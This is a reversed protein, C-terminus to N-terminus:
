LIQQLIKKQELSLKEPYDVNFNIILNGIYNDRKIGLNSIIQQYGDKIISSGDNKITYIKKNIHNINFSFGCLSEKFSINKNYILDLGKRKFRIDDLIKIQIKIDGNIVYNISNGKNKILIIENNDIGQPITVYITEIEKSIIKNYELKKEIEVPLICGLFAQELNIELKKYILDPFVMDNKIVEENKFIDEQKNKIDVTNIEKEKINNLYQMDYLKKKNIDSLTEYAMLIKKYYETTNKDKDPHYQLSLRRFSQKIESLNAKNSIKLIEYLDVYNENTWSM